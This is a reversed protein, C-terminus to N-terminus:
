ASSTMGPRSPSGSRRRTCDIMSLLRLPPRTSTVGRRDTLTLEWTPRQLLALSAPAGSVELRLRAIARVTRGATLAQRNAAEVVKTPLKFIREGPFNERGLVSVLKRGNFSFVRTKDDAM